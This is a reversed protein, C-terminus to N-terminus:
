KRPARPSETALEARGERIYRKAAHEEIEAEDGGDHDPGFDKMEGNVEHRVGTLFRVRMKKESAKTFQVAM